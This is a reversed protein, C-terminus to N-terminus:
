QWAFPAYGSGWYDVYAGGSYAGRYPHQVDGLVGVPGSDFRGADIAYGGGGRGTGQYGISTRIYSGNGGGVGRYGGFVHEYLPPEMDLPQHATDIAYPGAFDVHSIPDYHATTYRPNQPQSYIARNGTAYVANPLQHYSRPFEDNSSAQHSDATISGSCDQCIQQSEEGELTRTSAPSSSVGYRGIVGTQAQNLGHGDCGGEYQCDRSTTHHIQDISRGTFLPEVVASEEFNPDASIPEEFSNSWSPFYCEETIDTANCQLVYSSPIIQQLQATSYLPDPRNTPQHNLHEEHANFIEQPLAYSTTFRNFHEM